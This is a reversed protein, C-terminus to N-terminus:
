EERAKSDTAALPLEAVVRGGGAVPGASWSGGLETARERMSSLGVGPSWAGTGPGDDCVEIRLLGNCTISVTCMTAGAHRSVNTVAEAVMRYAAVEVAPSLDGVADPARLVVPVPCRRVHERLAGLLGLSDLAPPRLAYVLRRLDDLAGSLDNRVDALIDDAKDVDRRLLNRSADVRTAAATLVPGLGDHLDRRLRRREEEAANIIRERSRRLEQTLIVNAAAVASQRAIDELLRREAPAMAAEGPRRGVVLEGLARGQHVLPFHELEDTPTGHDIRRSTPAEGHLDVAAYPVRLTTVISEVVGPLLQEASGAAELRAGIGSVVAYPEDRQGYLFRNVLRQVRQRAPFLSFAAGIAPLLGGTFGVQQGLRNVLAVLAGYVLAVVATLVAYVLTRNLVVDIGYIRHRLTGAILVVLLLVTGIVDGAGGLPQLLFGAVTVFVLSRLVYRLPVIARRWRLVLAVSALALGPLFLVVDNIAPLVALGLPHRVGALPGHPDLSLPESLAHLLGACCLGLSLAGLWRALGGPWRGDPFFVLIMVLVVPEVALGWNFMWAGVNAGPLGHGGLHALLAWQGGAVALGNGLGAALALPGLVVGPRRRALYWGSVTFLLASIARGILFPRSALADETGGGPVSGHYPSLEPYRTAVVLVLGLIAATVAVVAAANAALGPHDRTKPDQPPVPAQDM